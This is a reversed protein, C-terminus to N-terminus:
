LGSVKVDNLFDFGRVSGQLMKVQTRLIELLVWSRGRSFRGVGLITKDCEHIFVNSYYVAFLFADEV